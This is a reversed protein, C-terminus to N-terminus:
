QRKKLIEDLKQRDEDLIKERPPSGSRDAKKAAKPPATAASEGATLKSIRDWHFWVLFAFFWIIIPTLVFFLVAKLPARKRKNKKAV